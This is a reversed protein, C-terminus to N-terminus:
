EQLDELLESIKNLQDKIISQSDQYHTCCGCCVSCLTNPHTANAYKKDLEQYCRSIHGKITDRITEKQERIVLLIHDDYIQEVQNGDFQVTHVHLTNDISKESSLIVGVKDALTDIVFPLYGQERLYEKSQMVVTDGEFIYQQQGNQSQEWLDAVRLVKKM